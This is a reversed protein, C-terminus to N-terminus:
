MGTVGDRCLLVPAMPDRTMEVSPLPPDAGQVRPLSGAAVSCSPHACLARSQKMCVLM